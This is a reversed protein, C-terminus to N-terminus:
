RYLHHWVRSPKIDSIFGRVVRALADRSLEFSETVSHENQPEEIEPVSYKHGVVASCCPIELENALIIEPALTMSNVQAGFRRWM